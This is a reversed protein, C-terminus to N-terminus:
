DARAQEIHLIRHGVCLTAGAVTPAANDGDTVTLELPATERTSPFLVTAAPDTTQPVETTHPADTTQPALTVPLETTQPAEKGQFVLERLAKLTTQPDLVPVPVCAVLTTQPAATDVM